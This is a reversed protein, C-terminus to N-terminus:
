ATPGGFSWGAVGGGEGGDADACAVVVGCYRPGILASMQADGVATDEPERALIKQFALPTKVQATELSPPTIALASEPLAEVAGRVM